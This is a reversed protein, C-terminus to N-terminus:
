RLVMIESLSKAEACWSDIVQLPVALAKKLRAAGILTAAGYFKLLFNHV